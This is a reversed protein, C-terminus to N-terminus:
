DVLSQALLRNVDDPPQIPHQDLEHRAECLVLLVVGAAELERALETEERLEHEVQTAGLEEM